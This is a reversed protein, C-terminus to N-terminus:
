AGVVALVIERRHPRDRHEILYIGQWTGLALRGDLVPITLGSDTVMTRIHAPMDDPGEIGHVYAGHRPALGDLATMLDIRVDPDANEQITLSASTHRCFVTLVGQRLGSRAVFAAVTETIDTFGQGPTAVVLRASAQRSVPGAQFGDLGGIRADRTM